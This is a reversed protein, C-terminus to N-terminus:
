RDPTHDLSLLRRTRRNSSHDLAGTRRVDRSEARRAFQSGRDVLLRDM